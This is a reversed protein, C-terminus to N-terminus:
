FTGEDIDTLSGGAGIITPMQTQSLQGPLNGLNPATATTLTTGDVFRFALYSQLNLHPQTAM